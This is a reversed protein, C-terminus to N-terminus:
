IAESFSYVEINAVFAASFARCIAPIPGSSISRRITAVTVGSKGNGDVAQRTCFLRFATFAVAKSIDAAHEPKM